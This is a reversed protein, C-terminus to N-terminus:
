ARWVVEPAFLRKQNTGLKVNLHLKPTKGKRPSEAFKRLRAAGRTLIAQLQEVQDLTLYLPATTNPRTLDLCSLKSKFEVNVGGLTKQKKAM